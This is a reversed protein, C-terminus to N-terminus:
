EAAEDFTTVDAKAQSEQQWAAFQAEDDVHLWARMKYHGWGCLETCAIEYRGVQNAEFWVRQRMGPVVDQKVRLAPVFFSHLVDTSQIELVVPKGVPVHLEDTVMVDDVTGFVGDAGPYWFDWDFQRAVVRATPGVEHTKGDAAMETPVDMKNRAWAEMQYLSLFVLVLGPIVAWIIELLHSGHTAPARGAPRTAGAWLSWALVLGTVVFIVGTIWLILDFLHDIVGGYANVNEPLWHGQLPWWDLVAWVIMWTGLIPVSLLLLSWFRNM